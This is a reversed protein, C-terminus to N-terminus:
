PYSLAQLQNFHKVVLMKEHGNIHYTVCAQGNYVPPKIKTHEKDNTHMIPNRENTDWSEAILLQYRTKGKEVSKTLSYNDAGVKAHWKYGIWATDITTNSSDASEFSIVYNVGMRCCVGGSWQQMTASLLKLSQANTTGIAIFFVLFLFVHKMM